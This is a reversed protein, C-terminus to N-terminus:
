DQSSQGAQFSAGLCETAPFDLDQPDRSAVSGEFRGGPSVLYLTPWGDIGLNLRDDRAQVAYWPEALGHRGIFDAAASDGSSVSIWAAPVDGAPTAISTVGSWQGAMDECFPCASHFFVMIGCSSGFVDHLPVPGRHEGDVFSMLTVNDLIDGSSVQRVASAGGSTLIFGTVYYAIGAAGVLVLVVGFRGTSWRLGPFVLM